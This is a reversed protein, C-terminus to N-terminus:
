LKSRENGVDEFTRWQLTSFCASWSWLPRVAMSLKSWFHFAPSWFLFISIIMVLLVFPRAILAPVPTQGGTVLEELAKPLAAYAVTVRRLVTNIVAPIGLGSLLRSGPLGGM